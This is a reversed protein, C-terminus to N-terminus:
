LDPPNIEWKKILRESEARPLWRKNALMTRLARAAEQPPLLERHIMEELLWLTGHYEVKHSDALERLPGDGSILLSRHQRALIYVSLDNPSLEIHEIQLTEIMLVQEAELGLIKLGLAHLESPSYSRSIEDAVIDSTSFDFPLSFLTDFIGGKIFDLLISADIICKKQGTM